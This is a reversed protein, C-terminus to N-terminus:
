SEREQDDALLRLPVAGSVAELADEFGALAHAQDLVNNGGAAGSHFGDFGEALRPELAARRDTDDIALLASAVRECASGHTEPREKACFVQERRFFHCHLRM